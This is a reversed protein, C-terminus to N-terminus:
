RDDGDGGLVGREQRSELKEIVLRAADNITYGLESCTAACYWLVDGIEKLIAKEDLVGDRIFKKVKEAVEGTEGNLGLVPYVLNNGRDPYFATKMAKEQFNIFDM